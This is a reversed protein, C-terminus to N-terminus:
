IKKNNIVERVLAKKKAEVFVRPLDEIIMNTKDINVKTKNLLENVRNEVSDVLRNITVVNKGSVETVHGVVKDLLEVRDHISNFTETLFAVSTELSKKQSELINLTKELHQVDTELRTKESNLKSVDKSILPVLEIEKKKLEEIKGEVKNLNIQIDSNSSALEKNVKQLKEKTDRLVSIEKLLADRQGAWRSLQEKQEPLTEM